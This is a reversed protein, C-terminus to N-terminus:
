KVGLVCQYVPTKETGLNKIKGNEFSPGCPNYSSDNNKCCKFGSCDKKKGEQQSNWESDVCFGVKVDNIGVDCRDPVGDLDKDIKNNAIICIDCSDDPRLDNDDDKFVIMRAKALKGEGECVADGFTDATRGIQQLGPFIKYGYIYFLLGLGILLGAIALLAGFGMSKKGKLM